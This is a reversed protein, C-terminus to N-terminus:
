NEGFEARGGRAGRAGLSPDGVWNKGPPNQGDDGRSKESWRVWQQFKLLERINQFRGGLGTGVFVLVLVGWWVQM